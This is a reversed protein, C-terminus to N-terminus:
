HQQEHHEKRPQYDTITDSTQRISLGFSQRFQPSHAPDHMWEALPLPTGECQRTYEGYWYSLPHGKYTLPATM